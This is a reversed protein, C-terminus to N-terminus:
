FNQPCCQIKKNYNNQGDDKMIIMFFIIINFLVPEREFQM